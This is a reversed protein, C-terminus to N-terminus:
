RAVGTQTGAYDELTLRGGPHSRDVHCLQMQTLSSLAGLGDCGDVECRPPHCESIRMACRHAVDHVWPQEGRRRRPHPREGVQPRERPRRAFGVASCSVIMSPLSPLREVDVAVSWVPFGQGRLLFDIIVSIYSM